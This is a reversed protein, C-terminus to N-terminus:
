KQCSWIKPRSFLLKVKDEILHGMRVLSRILFCYSETVHGTRVIFCYSGMVFIDINFYLFILILIDSAITCIRM